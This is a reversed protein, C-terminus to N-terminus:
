CVYIWIVLSLIFKSYTHTHAPQPLLPTSDVTRGATLAGTFDPSGETPRLGSVLSFLLLLWLAASAHSSSACLSAPKELGYVTLTHAQQAYICLSDRDPTQWSDSDHWGRDSHKVILQQFLQLCTPLISTKLRWGGDVGGEELLQRRRLLLLELLPRCIETLLSVFQMRQFFFLLFGLRCGRRLLCGGGRYSGGKVFLHSTLILWGVRLPCSWMKSSTLHHKRM